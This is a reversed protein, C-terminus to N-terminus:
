IAWEFLQHFFHNLILGCPLDYRGWTVLCSSVSCHTKDLFHHHGSRTFRAGCMLGTLSCIGWDTLTGSNLFLFLVGESWDSGCDGLTLIMIFSNTFAYVINPWLDKLFSTHIFGPDRWGVTHAPPGTSYWFILAIFCWHLIGSEIEIAFLDMQVYPLPLLGLHKLAEKDLMHGHCVFKWCLGLYEPLM